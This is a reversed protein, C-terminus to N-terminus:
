IILPNKITPTIKLNNSRLKDIKEIESVFLENFSNYLTAATTPNQTTFRQVKQLLQTLMYQYNQDDRSEIHPLAPQPSASTSFVIYNNIIEKESPNQTNLASQFATIFITLSTNADLYSKMMNNMSEGHQTTMMDAIFTDCNFCAVWKEKTKEMYSLYTVALPQLVKSYANAMAHDDTLIVAPAYQNVMELFKTFIGTFIGFPMKFCNTKYTNDYVVIDNFRSYNIRQESFMWIAQELRKTDENIDVYYFFEADDYKFQDLIKVFEEADLERKELGSGELHYIFNSTM